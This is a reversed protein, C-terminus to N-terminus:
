THARKCLADATLAPSGRGLSSPLTPGPGLHGLLGAGKRRLQEDRTKRGGREVQFHAGDSGARRERKTSECDTHPCRQAKSECSPQYLPTRPAERQTKQSAPLFGSPLNRIGPRRSAPGGLERSPVDLSLLTVRESLRQADKCSEQRRSQLGGTAISIFPEEPAGKLHVHMKESRPARLAERNLGVETAKCARGGPSVGLSVGRSGM